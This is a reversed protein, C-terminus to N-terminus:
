NKGKLRDPIGNVIEEAIATNGADNPHYPAGTRMGHMWPEPSCVTHKFWEAGGTVYTVNAKSAARQIAIDLSSYVRATAAIQESDLPLDKCGKDVPSVIPLYGIVMIEAHPARNKVANIVNFVSKEARDYDAGTPEPSPNHRKRCYKPSNNCSTTTVRGVYGIDNGGVTITVLDTQPNVAEIQLGDPNGRQKSSLINKTTAGACSYDTLKYGLKEAVQNPYSKVGRGCRGTGPINDYSIGSAYSGGLAAYSIPEKADNGSENPVTGESVTQKTSMSSIASSSLLAVGCTLVVAFLVVSLKKLKGRVM